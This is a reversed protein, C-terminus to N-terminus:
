VQTNISVFFFSPPPPLCCKLRLPNLHNCQNVLFFRCFFKLINFTKLSKFSKASSLHHIGLLMSQHSIGPLKHFGNPFPVTPYPVAPFYNSFPLLTCLGRLKSWIQAPNQAALQNLWQQSKQQGITQCPSYKKSYGFTTCSNALM